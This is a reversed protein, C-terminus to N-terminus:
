RNGSARRAAISREVIQAAAIRRFIRFREFSDQAAFHLTRLAIQRDNIGGASEDDGPRARSKDRLFKAPALFLDIAAARQFFQARQLIVARLTSISSACCRSPSHRDISRNARSCRSRDPRRRAARASFRWRKPERQNRHRSHRRSRRESRACKWCSRRRSKTAEVYIDNPPKVNAGLSYNERLSRARRKAGGLENPAAIREAFDATAVSDFVMLGKEAASEWRKGHQGRGATQTEAFVVLGEPATRRWKGSSTTPRLRRKSFSFAIHRHRACKASRPACRNLRRCADAGALSRDRARFPHARRGFCLRRRDGAIQRINKLNVGGSAEFKVGKKKGLAVAERMEAPPMNDLLIVDIGDMELFTRVQELRDAEVEIRCAPVNAGCKNFRRPWDTSIRESTMLHNDKVLVMDYLGFRHNAGGGAVVAAKELARLGPTTKRTDLIKAKSRVGIGDVFQRTLTAIGCLRQLFNLAVREATLISRAAGRIEMITEGGSLSAATRSCLKSRCNRISAGSFKRPRKPAPWSRASARSSEGSPRCRGGSRFTRSTIDGAGIDESLAIAIPDLSHNEM